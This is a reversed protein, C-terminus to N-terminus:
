QNPYWVQCSTGDVPAETRWVTIVGQSGILDISKQFKRQDENIQLSFYSDKNKHCKDIIRNGIDEAERLYAVINNSFDNEDLGDNKMLELAIEHPCIYKIEAPMFCYRFIQLPRQLNTFSNNTLYHLTYGRQKLRKFFTGASAYLYESIYENYIRFENASKYIDDAIVFAVTTIQEDNLVKLHNEVAKSIEEKVKIQKADPYKSIMQSYEFISNKNQNDWYETIKDFFWNGMEIM